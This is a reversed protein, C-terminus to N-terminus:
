ITEDSEQQLECGYRFVLSVCYLVLGASFYMGELSGIYYDVAWSYLHEAPELLLFSIAINRIRRGNKDTFPSIDRRLSLLLRITFVLACAWLAIILLAIAGALASGEAEGDESYGETFGSIFGTVAGIMPVIMYLILIVAAILSARRIKEKSTRKKM